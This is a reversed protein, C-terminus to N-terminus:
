AAIVPLISELSTFIAAIDFIVASYFIIGSVSKSSRKKEIFNCAAFNVATYLIMFMLFYVSIIGCFIMSLILLVGNPFKRRFIYYIMISLPFFGYIFLLSSYVM